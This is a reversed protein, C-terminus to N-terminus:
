PSCGRISARRRRRHAHDPRHADDVPCRSTSSTRGPSARPLRLPRRDHRLRLGHRGIRDAHLHRHLYSGSPHDGARRAGVRGRPHHRRAPAEPSATPRALARTRSYWIIYSTRHSLGSSCARPSAPPSFLKAVSQEAAAGYIIMLISGASHHERHRRRLHDARALVERRLRGRWCRRTSPAASRRWRPSARARSRASSSSRASRPSASAAACAASSPRWGLPDAAGLHRRHLLARRRLHLLAGGHPRVQGARRVHEPAPRDPPVSLFFAFTVAAGALFVVFIPTGLALLAVPLVALSWIM